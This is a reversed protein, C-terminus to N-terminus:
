SLEVKVSENNITNVANEIEIISLRTESLRNELTNIILKLALKESIETDYIGIVSTGFDQFKNLCNKNLKRLGNEGVLRYEIKTDDEKIVKGVKSLYGKKTGVSQLQGLPSYWAMFYIEKNLLTNMIEDKKKIKHLSGFLNGDTKIMESITENRKNLYEEKNTYRLTHSLPDLCKGCVCTDPFRKLAAMPEIAVHYNECTPNNCFLKM